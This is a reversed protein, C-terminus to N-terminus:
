RCYVIHTREVCYHEFSHGIKVKANELNFCTSSKWRGGTVQRGNLGVAMEGRASEGLHNLNALKSHYRTKTKCNQKRTSVITNKKTNSTNGVVRRARRESHEIGVPMKATVATNQM